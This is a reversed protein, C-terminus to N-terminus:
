PLEMITVMKSSRTVATYALQRYLKPEKKAVYRFKNDKAILVSEWQSGQSKHITICYAWDLWTVPVHREIPRQEQSPTGGIEGDFYSVVRGDSLHLRRLGQWTNAEAMNVTVIDGNIVGAKYNNKTIVLKEGPQPVNSTWGRKKRVEDNIATRVQHTYTLAISDTGLRPVIWDAADEVDGSTRYCEECWGEWPQGLRIATALALTPSDLAQRHVTVLRATPNSFDFGWTDKVPPLQADDGVGLLAANPPLKLMVDSFLRTGVMSAEDIIFVGGDVVPPRPDNYVLEGGKCPEAGAAREEADHWMGGQCLYPAGYVLSHITRAERGTVESARLAAKGSLAAIQVLKGHDRLYDLITILCTTKGSGAPGVFLSVREGTIISRVALACARVQEKTLEVM